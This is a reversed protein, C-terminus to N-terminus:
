RCAQTWLVKLGLDALRHELDQAEAAKKTQPNWDKIKWHVGLFFREKGDELKEYMWFISFKEHNLALGSLVLDRLATAYRTQKYNLFARFAHMTWERPELEIARDLDAKVLALDKGTAWLIISRLYLFAFSSDPRQAALLKLDALAIDYQEHNLAAMLRSFRFKTDRPRLKLSRDMDELARKWEGLQAHCFGLYEYANYSTADHQVV